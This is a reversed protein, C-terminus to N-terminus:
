PQKGHKFKIDIGYKRNIQYNLITSHIFFEYSFNPIDNLKTVKTDSM